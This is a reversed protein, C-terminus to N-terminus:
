LDTRHFMFLVSLFRIFSCLVRVGCESLFIVNSYTITSVFSVGGGARKKLVIGGIKGFGSNKHSVDSGVKKCCYQFSLGGEWGGM